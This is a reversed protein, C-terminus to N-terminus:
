VQPTRMGHYVTFVQQLNNYMRVIVTGNVVNCEDSAATYRTVRMLFILFFSLQSLQSIEFILGHLGM